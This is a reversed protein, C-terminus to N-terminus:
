DGIIKIETQLPEKVILQVQRILEIIDEFTANKKNVIINVSESVEADGVRLGILKDVHPKLAHWNVFVGGASPLTPLNKRHTKAKNFEEENITAISTDFLAEIVIEEKDQLISYRRGFKLDDKYYTHKISNKDLTTVTLLHDSIAYTGSGANMVITGGIEGPIGYLGEFGKIIQNIFASTLYNSSVITRDQYSPRLYQPLKNLCIIKDIIPKLLVNTGGGLIFFKKYKLEKLLNQLEPITEPFWIEKVISNLRFSNHNKLEYNTYYRM